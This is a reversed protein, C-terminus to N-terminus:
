GARWPSARIADARRRLRFPRDIALEDASTAELQKFVYHDARSQGVIAAQTSHVIVGAADTVSISGSEPLAAKASALISEWEAQRRWRVASARETFRCSGSRPM